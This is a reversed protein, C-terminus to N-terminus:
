FIRNLMDVRGGHINTYRMEIELTPEMTTDSRSVIIKRCAVTPHIGRSLTIIGSRPLFGNVM